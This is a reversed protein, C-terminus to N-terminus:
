QSITYFLIETLGFFFGKQLLLFTKGMNEVHLM